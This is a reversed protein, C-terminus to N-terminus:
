NQKQNDSQCNTLINTSKTNDITKAMQENKKPKVETKNSVEREGPGYRILKKPKGHNHNFNTIRVSTGEHTSVVRAM